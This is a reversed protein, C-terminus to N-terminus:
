RCDHFLLIALRLNLSKGLLCFAAIDIAAKTCNHGILLSDMRQHLPLPLVAIGILGPAMERLAALGVEIQNARPLMAQCRIQLIRSFFSSISSCPM